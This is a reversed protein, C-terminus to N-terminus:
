EVFNTHKIVYLRIKLTIAGRERSNKGMFPRYKEAFMAERKPKALSSFAVCVCQKKREVSRFPCEVSRFPREASRFAREVSGFSCKM